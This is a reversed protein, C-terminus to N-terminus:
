NLREVERPSGRGAMAGVVGATLLQWLKWKKPGRRPDGVEAFEAEPLRALVYGAMGGFVERM